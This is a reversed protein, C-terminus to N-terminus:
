KRRSSERGQLSHDIGATQNRCDTDQQGDEIDRQAQRMVDRTPAPQEASQDREDPQQLPQSLGTPADAPPSRRTATSASEHSKRGPRPPWRLRDGRIPM